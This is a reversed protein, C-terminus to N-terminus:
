LCPDATDWETGIWWSEKLMGLPTNYFLTM